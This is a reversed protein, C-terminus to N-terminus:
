AGWTSRSDAPRDVELEELSITPEPDVQHQLVALADEADELREHLAEWAEVSVILAAPKSHRLLYVPEDQAVRALETLRGKAESIAVMQM